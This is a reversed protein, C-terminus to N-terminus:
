QGTKDIPSIIYRKIRMSEKRKPGKWPGMFIGVLLGILYSFHEIVFLPLMTAFLTKSGIRAAGGCSSATVLLLYSILTALTLAPLIPAVLALLMAVIFLGLIRSDINGRGTLMARMRGVGYWFFQSAFSSITSRRKHYVFVSRDLLLKYGKERLRASIDTDEAIEFRRDFGNVKELASKRYICNHGSIADVYDRQDKPISMLSPSNLSGVYTSFVGGIAKEFKSSPNQIKSVGGVGAVNQDNPLAAILSSLWRDPAGCDADIFVILPARSKTIGLSRAKGRNGGEVVIVEFPKRCRQRELSALFPSEDGM